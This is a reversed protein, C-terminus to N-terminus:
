PADKLIHDPDIRGPKDFLSSFPRSALNFVGNRGSFFMAENALRERVPNVKLRFTYATGNYAINFHINGGGIGIWAPTFRWKERAIVIEKEDLTYVLLVGSKRGYAWRVFEGLIFGYYSVPAEFGPIHFEEDAKM